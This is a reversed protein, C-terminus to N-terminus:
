AAGGHYKRLHDNFRAELVWLRQDIGSLKASLDDIKKQLSTDATKLSQIDGKLGDISSKLEGLSAELGSLDKGTGEDKARLAGLQDDLNASVQSVTREIRRMRADGGGAFANLSVVLAGITALAILLLMWPRVRSKM